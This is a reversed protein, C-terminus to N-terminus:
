EWGPNQTVAGGSLSIENLPVPYLYDKAPNFKRDAAIEIVYIDPEDYVQTGNLKGQADTLRKALEARTKTCESDVFKAGLMNTTLVNEAIKWRIIDNYRFGEDLLEVTRERRIENLMNLGNTSAFANTLKATFGVRSRLANVTQDLQADTIAGNYEYLAEAYSILVEAYRILMKDITEKSNTEWESLLFGKKLSYGYGHQNNFPIYAGKYADEGLKYLTMGLRPDRNEFITNFSPEPSVKLPSKERPLGDTYLFQDVMQRTVSVTNEMLRSNNHTVTGEGNPGYVKVFINEKNQRGEGDFLFLKQFNPYLAHEKGNIILEAADIAIKLHSKYDSSLNHYKAWTGEYLGIRVKMALAASRTVRGWDSAPLNTITPLWQVAFDLDKYCQQIVEERPTRTSLLMPDDTNEIAKLMMPVDGYKQVLEFHYYARFFYAEALWRNKVNDSLLANSGKGIINNATFIRYYPDTWNSSTSPVTWSGSSTNDASTKVLEDSRTDHSFGSLLNYLRNDAGGLDKDTKWFSNDTFTTEPERTLDCSALFLISLLMLSYYIKRM